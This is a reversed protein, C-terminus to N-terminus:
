RQALVEGVDESTHMAVLLHQDDVILQSRSISAVITTSFRDTQQRRGTELIDADMMPVLVAPGHDARPGIVSVLRSSDAAPGRHRSADPRESVRAARHHWRAPASLTDIHRVVANRD